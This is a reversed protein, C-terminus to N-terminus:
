LSEYTDAFIERKVPWCGWELNPGDEDGAMCLMDVAPDITLGNVQFPDKSSVLVPDLAWTINGCRKEREPPTQIETWVDEPITEPNIKEGSVLEYKQVIKKWTPSWHEFRTGELKPDGAWLDYHGEGYENDYSHPASVKTLKIRYHAPIFAQANNVLGKIKEMINAM